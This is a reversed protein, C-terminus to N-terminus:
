VEAIPKMAVVARCGQCVSHQKRRLRGETHRISPELRLFSVAELVRLAM